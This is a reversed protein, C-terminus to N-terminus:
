HAHKHRYINHIQAPYLSYKYKNHNFVQAYIYSSNYDYIVPSEAVSRSLGTSQIWAKGKRVQIRYPNWSPGRPPKLRPNRFLDTTNLLPGKKTTYNHRKSRADFCVTNQACLTIVKCLDVTEFLHFCIMISHLRCLRALPLLHYLFVLVGRSPFLTGRPTNTYVSLVYM